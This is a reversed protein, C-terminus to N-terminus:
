KCCCWCSSNVSANEIKPEGFLVPDLVNEEQMPEKSPADPEDKSPEDKLQEDRAPKLIAADAKGPVDVPEHISLGDKVKEDMTPVVKAADPKIELASIADQLRRVNVPDLGSIAAKLDALDISNVSTAYEALTKSPEQMRGFADMLKSRSEGNLGELAKKIEDPNSKELVRVYDSIKKEQNTAKPLLTKPTAAPAKSSTCGM